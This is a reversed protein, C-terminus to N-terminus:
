GGVGRELALRRRRKEEARRKEKEEELRDAERALRAARAEERAIAAPSAEMDSSSSDDIYKERGGKRGFLQHIDLGHQALISGGGGGGYGREERSKKLPRVRKKSRHLDDDRDLDDSDDTDDSSEVSPTKRRRKNQSNSNSEVRKREPASVVRNGNGHHDGDNRERQKGKDQLRGVNGGESVRRSREGLSTREHKVPHPRQNTILSDNGKDRTVVRQNEMTINRNGKNPGREREVERGGNKPSAVIPSSGVSLKKGHSVSGSPSLRSANSESMRNLVKNTNKRKVASSTSEDEFERAARLARREAQSLQITPKPERPTRTVGTQSPIRSPGATNTQTTSPHSSQKPKLLGLSKAAAILHKKDISDTKISTDEGELKKREVEMEEKEKQRAMARLRKLREEDEKARRNKEEQWQREKAKQQQQALELERKERAAKAAQAVMLDKFSSM